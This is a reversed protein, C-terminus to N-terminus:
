RRGSLAGIIVAGPGLDILALDGDAAATEIAETSTLAHGDVSAAFPLTQGGPPAMWLPECAGSVLGQGTCLVFFGQLKVSYSGRNGAPVAEVVHDHPFTAMPGQPVASQPAVVYFPDLDAPTAGAFSQEAFTMRVEDGDAWVNEYCGVRSANKGSLDVCNRIGAADVGPTGAIGIATIGLALAAVGLRITSRLHKIM